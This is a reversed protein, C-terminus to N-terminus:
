MYDKLDDLPEDFDSALRYKGQASGFKPRKRKPEYKQWLFEVFDLVEQQLAPPLQALQQHITNELM